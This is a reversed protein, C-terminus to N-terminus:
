KNQQLDTGKCPHFIIPTTGAGKEKEAKRQDNVKPVIKRFAVRDLTTTCLVGACRHYPRYELGYQCSPM